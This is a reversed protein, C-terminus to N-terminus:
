YQSHEAHSSGSNQTNSYTTTVEQTSVTSPYKSATSAQTTTLFPRTISPITVTSNVDSTRATSTEDTKADTSMTHNRQEGSLGVNMSHDTKVNTVEDNRGTSGSGTSSILM